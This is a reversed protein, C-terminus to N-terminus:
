VSSEFNWGTYTGYKKGYMSMLHTQYDILALAQRKTAKFTVIENMTSTQEIEFSTLAIEKAFKSANIFPIEFHHSIHCTNTKRLDIDSAAVKKENLECRIKREQDTEIIGALGEAFLEDIEYRNYDLIWKRYSHYIPLLTDKEFSFVDCGRDDYMHFLIGKTKNYLYIQGGAMPKRMFDANVICEVVYAMRIEKAKVEVFRIYPDHVIMEKLINM